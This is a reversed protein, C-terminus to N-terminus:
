STVVDAPPMAAAYRLWEALRTIPEPPERGADMAAQALARPRWSKERKLWGLADPVAHDALGACLDAYGATILMQELSGTEGCWIVNPHQETLPEGSVPDTVHGLAAQGQADADAFLVWRIGVSELIAIARSVVNISADCKGM